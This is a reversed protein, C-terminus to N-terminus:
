ATSPPPLRIRANRTISVACNNATLWVQAARTAAATSSDRICMEYASKSGRNMCVLLTPPDDTVSCVASATFGYRGAPGDTTVVSVAAGFRAMAERYAQRHVM